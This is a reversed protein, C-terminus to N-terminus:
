SFPLIEWLKRFINMKRIGHSLIVNGGDVGLLASWHGVVRLMGSCSRGKGWAPVNARCSITEQGMM